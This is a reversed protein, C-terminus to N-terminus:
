NMSETRPDFAQRCSQSAWRKLFEMHETHKILGTRMMITQFCQRDIAWLKVDTLASSVPLGAHFTSKARLGHSYDMLAHAAADLKLVPHMCLICITFVAYTTFHKIYLCALPPLTLCCVSFTQFLIIFYLFLSFFLCWAKSGLPFIYPGDCTGCPCSDDIKKKKWKSYNNLVKVNCSFFSQIWICSSYKINQVSSTSCILGPFKSQNCASIEAGRHASSIKNNGM